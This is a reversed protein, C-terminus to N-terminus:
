IQGTWILDFDEKFLNGGYLQLHEPFEGTVQQWCCCYFTHSHCTRQLAEPVEVIASEPGFPVVRCGLYVSAWRLVEQSWVGKENTHFWMGFPGLDASSASKQSWQQFGCDLVVPQKLATLRFLLIM